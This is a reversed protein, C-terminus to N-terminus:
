PKLGNWLLNLIEIKRKEIFKPNMIDLNPVITELLPQAIFVYVCMGIISFFLHQADVKKIQKQQIAFQIKQIIPFIGPKSKTYILEEFVDKLSEGGHQLEWMFFRIIQPNKYLQDIYNNIFIQLLQYIDDIPKLTSFLTTLLKGIELKFIYRYLKEKSRFYYHLLAKNIGALEAIEQMRAGYKGKKLFISTAATIIKNETLSIDETM